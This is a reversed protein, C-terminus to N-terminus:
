ASATPIDWILTRVFRPGHAAARATEIPKAHTFPIFALFSHMTPLLSRDDSGSKALMVYLQQTYLQPLACTHSLPKVPLTSQFTCFSEVFLHVSM